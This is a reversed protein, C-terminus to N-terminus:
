NPLSGFFEGMDLPQAIEDFAGDLFTDLDGASVEAVEHDYLFADGKLNSCVYDGNGFSYFAIYDTYERRPKGGRSQVLEALNKMRAAPVFGGYDDMGSQWGDFAAYFRKVREPLLLNAKSESTVRFYPQRQLLPSSLGFWVTPDNVGFTQLYCRVPHDASFNEFLGIVKSEQTANALHLFRDVGQQYAVVEAPTFAAQFQSPLSEWPVDWARIETLTKITQSLDPQM